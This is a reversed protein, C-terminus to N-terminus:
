SYKAGQGNQWKRLETVGHCNFKYVYALFKACGIAVYITGYYYEVKAIYHM